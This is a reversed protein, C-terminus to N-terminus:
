GISVKGAVVKNDAQYEKLKKNGYYQLTIILRLYLLRAHEVILKGLLESLNPAVEVRICGCENVQM